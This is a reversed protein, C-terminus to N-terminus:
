FNILIGIRNCTMGIKLTPKTLYSYKLGSNYISVAHKAHKTYAVDFPISIAVIGLGIAALTWNADGGAIATGLPWGILFGGAFGFVYGVDYNNKAIKMESYAEQNTKTIDLLQRPTLPRGNQQFVTGLMKKVVISDPKDQGSISLFSFLLLSAFIFKKM